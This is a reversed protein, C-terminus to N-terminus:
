QRDHRQTFDTRMTLSNNWYPQFQTRLDQWCTNLGLLFTSCFKHSRATFRICTNSLNHFVLLLADSIVSCVICLHSGTLFYLALTLVASCVNCLRSISLFCFVFVLALSLLSVVKGM